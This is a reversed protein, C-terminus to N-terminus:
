NQAEYTERVKKRILKRQDKNKRLWNIADDEGHGIKEGEYSYWGVSKEIIEFDVAMEFLDKAVNYGTKFMLDLETNRFPPAVKNKVIKVRQVIGKPFDSKKPITSIRRVDIRQSSYFKLANGGTTTEPNGYLIGIKMRIQNIFIVSCKTKSIVASLKRLAQSMMRAQLGMHSQGMEGEVEAQPVLAAVSDIVVIDVARSLVAEEVMGLAQEGSDPQSLLIDDTVGFRTAYKPDYAYEADIFMATKKLRQFMAIIHLCLTSKGSSEPGFVEIIRGVPIGGGLACDLSMIGTPIFRVNEIPKSNKSLISGNGYKKEIRSTLADIDGYIRAEETKKTKAM